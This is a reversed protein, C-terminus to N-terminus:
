INEEKSLQELIKEFEKSISSDPISKIQDGPIKNDIAYAMQCMVSVTQMWVEEVGEPLGGLAQELGMSVGRVQSCLDVVEKMIGERQPEFADSYEKIYVM